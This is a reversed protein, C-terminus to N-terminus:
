TIVGSGFGQCSLAELRSILHKLKPASEASGDWSPLLKPMGSTTSSSKVETNSLYYDSIM